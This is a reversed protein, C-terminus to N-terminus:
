ARKVKTLNYGSAGAMTFVLSYTAKDTGKVSCKLQAYVDDFEGHKWRKTKVGACVASSAKKAAGGVPFGNTVISSEALQASILGNGTSSEGTCSARRRRLDSCTRGTTSWTLRSTNSLSAKAQYTGLLSFKALKFTANCKGTITKSTTPVYCKVKTIVIGPVQKKLTTQMAPKLAGALVASASKDNAAHASSTVALVAMGLLALAAVGVTAKSQVTATAGTRRTTTRTKSM